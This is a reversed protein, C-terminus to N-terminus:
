RYPASTDLLFGNAPQNNLMNRKIYNTDLLKFSDSSPMTMKIIVLFVILVIIVTLRDM